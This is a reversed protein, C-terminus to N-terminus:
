RSGIFHQRRNGREARRRPRFRKRDPTAVTKQKYQTQHAVVSPTHFVFSVL